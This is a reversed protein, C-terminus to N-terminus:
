SERVRAPLQRCLERARYVCADPFTGIDKLVDDGIERYVFIRNDKGHDTERLIRGPHGESADRILIINVEPNVSLVRSIVLDPLQEAGM